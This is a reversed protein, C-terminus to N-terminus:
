PEVAEALRHVIRACFARVNSPSPQWRLIAPARRPYIRHIEESLQRATLEVLWMTALYHRCELLFDRQPRTSM